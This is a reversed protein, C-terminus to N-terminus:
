ASALGRAARRSAWAKRSRAIYLGAPFGFLVTAPVVWALRGGLAPDLALAVGDIYRTLFVCLMLALPALSGEIRVSGDANAACRRPLDLVRNSAWGLAAGATWGALVIASGAAVFASSAGWLSYAALLTPVIVLRAPSVDRTRAQNLGFAVIVALVVWVWTPTHSIIALLTATM